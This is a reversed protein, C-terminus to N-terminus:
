ILSLQNFHKFWFLLSKRFKQKIEEIKDILDSQNELFNGSKGYKSSKKSITKINQCIKECKEKYGSLAISCYNM